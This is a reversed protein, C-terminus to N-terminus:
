REARGGTHVPMLQVEARLRRDTGNRDRQLSVDELRYDPTNEALGLLFRKLSPYDGELTLSVRGAQEPAQGASAFVVGQIVVGARKAAAALEGPSARGASADPAAAAQSARADAAEAVVSAAGQEAPAGRHPTTSPASVLLVIAGALLGASIVWALSASNFSSLRTM